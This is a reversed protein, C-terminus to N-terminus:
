EDDEDQNSCDSITPDPSLVTFTSSSIAGDLSVSSSSAGSFLAVNVGPINGLSDPIAPLGGGLGSSYLNQSNVPTNNMSFNDSTSALSVKNTSLLNNSDSYFLIPAKSEISSDHVTDHTMKFVSLVNRRSFRTNLKPLSSVVSAATTDLYTLLGSQIRWIIIALLFFILLLFMARMPGVKNKKSDQKENKM